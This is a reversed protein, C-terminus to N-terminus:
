YVNLCYQAIFVPLYDSTCYLSVDRFLNCQEATFCLIKRNNKTDMLTTSDIYERVTSATRYQLLTNWKKKDGNYQVIM